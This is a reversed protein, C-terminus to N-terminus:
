VMRGTYMSMASVKRMANVMITFVCDNSYNYKFRLIMGCGQYIICNSVCLLHVFVSLLSHLVQIVVTTPYMSYSFESGSFITLALQNRFEANLIVIRSTINSFETFM